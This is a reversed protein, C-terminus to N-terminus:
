GLIGKRWATRSSSSNMAPSTEVDKMSSRGSSSVVGHGPQGRCWTSRQSASTVTLWGCPGAGVWSQDLSFRGAPISRSLGEGWPERCRRRSRPGCAKAASGCRTGDLDGVGGEPREGTAAPSGAAYWPGGGCTGYTPRIVGCSKETSHQPPAVYSTASRNM